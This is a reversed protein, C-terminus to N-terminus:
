NETIEVCEGSNFWAEFEAFQQDYDYEPPEDQASDEKQRSDLQHVPRPSTVTITNVPSIRRAISPSKDSGASPTSVLPPTASAVDPVIEIFDCNLMFDEDGYLENAEKFGSDDGYSSSPGAFLPKQTVSVSISDDQLPSAPSQDVSPDVYEKFRKSSSSTHADELRRRKLEVSTRKVTEVAMPPEDDVTSKFPTSTSNANFDSSESLEAHSQENEQLSCSSPDLIDRVEPLDDDSDDLEDLCTDGSPGDAMRVFDPDFDSRKEGNKPHGHGSLKLRRGEALKLNGQVNMREHLTELHQM